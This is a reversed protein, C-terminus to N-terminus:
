SFDFTAHPSETPWELAPDLGVWELAPGVARFINIPNNPIDTFAAYMRALGFAEDSAVVFARHADPAFPNREAVARIGPTSM